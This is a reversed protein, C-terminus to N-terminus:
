AHQRTGKQPRGPLPEDIGRIDGNPLEGRGGRGLRTRSPRGVELARRGPPDCRVSGVPDRLRVAARGRYARHVHLRETIRAIACRACVLAHSSTPLAGEDRPAASSRGRLGLHRLEPAFWDGARSYLTAQRGAPAAAIL